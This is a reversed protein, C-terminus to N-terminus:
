ASPVRERITELVKDPTIGSAEAEFSLLIRHRLCDFFHRLGTCRDLISLEECDIQNQRRTTSCFVMLDVGTVVIVLGNDQCHSFGIWNVDLLHRNKKCVLIVLEQSPLVAQTM